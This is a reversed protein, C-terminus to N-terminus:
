GAGRRLIQRAGTLETGEEQRGLQARVTGPRVGVIPEDRAVPAGCKTLSTAGTKKGSSGWTALWRCREEDVEDGGWLDPHTGQLKGVWRNMLELEMASARRRRLVAEVM